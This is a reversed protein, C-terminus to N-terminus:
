GGGGGGWSMKLPAKSSYSGELSRVSASIRVAMLFEPPILPDRIIGSTLNLILLQRYLM